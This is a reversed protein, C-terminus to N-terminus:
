QELDLWSMFHHHPFYYHWIDTNDSLNRDVYVVDFAKSVQLWSLTLFYVLATFTLSKHHFLVLLIHDKGYDALMAAQSLPFCSSLHILRSWQTHNVTVSGRLFWNGVWPHLNIPQLCQGDSNLSIEEEVFSFDTMCDYMTVCVSLSM